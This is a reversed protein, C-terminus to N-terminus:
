MSLCCCHRYTSATWWFIPTSITEYANRAKANWSSTLLEVSKKWAEAKSLKQHKLIPEMIQNGITMTPNLSTMPDQFIMSIDKGRVKQMEKESIKLLIKEVSYFRAM